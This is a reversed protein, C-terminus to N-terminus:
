TSHGCEKRERASVRSFVCPEHFKQVIERLRWQASSLAADNVEGDVSMHTVFSEGRSTVIRFQIFFPFVLQSIECITPIVSRVM